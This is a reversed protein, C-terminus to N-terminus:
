FQHIETKQGIVVIAYLTESKVVTIILGIGM